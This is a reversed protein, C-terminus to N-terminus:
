RTQEAMTDKTKKIALHAKRFDFFKVVKFAPFFGPYHNPSDIIETFITFELIIIECFTALFIAAYFARGRKASGPACFRV